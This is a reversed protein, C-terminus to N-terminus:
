CQTAVLQLWPNLLVITTPPLVVLALGALVAWRHAVVWYWSPQLGGKAAQSVGSAHSAARQTASVGGRGLWQWAGALVQVLAMAFTRGEAFWALWVALCAFLFYLLLVLVFLDPLMGFRFLTTGTSLM